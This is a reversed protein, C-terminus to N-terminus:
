RTYVARAAKHIQKMRRKYEQARHVDDMRQLRDMAGTLKHLSELRSADLTGMAVAELVRCGPEIKHSCDRFRCHEALEQIDQFVAAASEVSAWPELERLGPSDILMWGQDLRFMQRVTTTHMGRSDHERVAKTSQVMRGLLQNLLTSKGAGSSGLMVATQGAEVYRHLQSVAAPDFGSTVVADAHPAISDVQRLADLPDPHLDSKNLVIVPSAGSEHVLVLYRELRRLNFDHDLATVVFVVDVNAALVQEQVERGAKKRSVKTRRPLVERILLSAPDYAVWDGTVPLVGPAARATLEGQETWLECFNRNESAVRGPQLGNEVRRSNTWGLACLDM